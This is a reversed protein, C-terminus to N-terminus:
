TYPVAAPKLNALVQSDREQNIDSIGILALTQDDIQLLYVEDQLLHIPLGSFVQELVKPTDVSGTVAFVGFPASLGALVSRTDKLARPDDLYDLNTYDGTLLILDPDLERVLQLLDRERRTIREVHTDSIQLIRLASGKGKDPGALRIQTTQLDFPELYLGQVEIALLLANFLLLAALGYSLLNPQISFSTWRQLIIASWLTMAVLLSVVLRISTIGILGRSLGGFSLGLRPLAAMLVWDLLGFILLFLAALGAIRGRETQIMEIHRWAFFSLGVAGCLFVVALGGPWLPMVAGVEGKPFLRHVLWFIKHLWATMMSGIGM